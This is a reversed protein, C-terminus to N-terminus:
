RFVFNAEDIVDSEPSMVLCDISDVIEQWNAENRQGLWIYFRILETLSKEYNM